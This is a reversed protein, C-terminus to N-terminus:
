AGGSDALGVWMNGKKKRRGHQVFQYKESVVKELLKGFEVNSGQYGAAQIQAYLESASRAPADECLVFTKEVLALEDSRDIKRATTPAKRAAPAAEYGPPVARNPAADSLEEVAQAAPALAPTLNPIHVLTHAALATALTSAALMARVRHTANDAEKSSETVETAPEVEMGAPAEVPTEVMAAPACAVADNTVWAQDVARKNARENRADDNRQKTAQVAQIRASQQIREQEARVGASRKRAAVEQEARAAEVRAQARGVVESRNSEPLMAWTAASALKDATLDTVIQDAVLRGSVVCIPLILKKGLEANKPVLYAGFLGKDNHLISINVVTSPPDKIDVKRFIISQSFPTDAVFASSSTCQPSRPPIALGARAVDVRPWSRPPLPLPLIQHVTAYTHSHHNARAIGPRRACHHTRASCYLLSLRPSTLNLQLRECWARSLSPASLRCSADDSSM